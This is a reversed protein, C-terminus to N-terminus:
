NKENLILAFEYLNKYIDTKFYIKDKEKLGVVKYHGVPLEIGEATYVCVPLGLLNYRDSPSNISESHDEDKL